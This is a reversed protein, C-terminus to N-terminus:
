LVFRVNRLFLSIVRHKLSNVHVLAPNKGRFLVASRNVATQPIGGIALRIESLQRNLMILCFNGKM